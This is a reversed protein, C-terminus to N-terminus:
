LTDFSFVRVLTLAQLRTEGGLRRGIDFSLPSHMIIVGRKRIGAIMERELKQEWSAGHWYKSM